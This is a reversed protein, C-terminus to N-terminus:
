DANQKKDSGRPGPQPAREDILGVIWEMDHPTDSLGTAMAPSIGGLSKHQNISIDVVRSTSRM